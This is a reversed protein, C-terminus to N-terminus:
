NKEGSGWWIQSYRNHRNTAQRIVGGASIAMWPNMRAGMAEMAQVTWINCVRPYFYAHRSELLVGDGWSSTGVVVPRGDEDMVSCHNLFAALDPGVERPVRRQWIRQHPCVETVHWDAPILEMVSESPLFLANVIEGPGNLRRQVYATRDGWSLTVYRANPFDKPPVFGSELLWHYEFVLGTHLADAILWVMVHPSRSKDGAKAKVREARQRTEQVLSEPPDSLRYAACSSFFWGVSFMALARLLLRNM